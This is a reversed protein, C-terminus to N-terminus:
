HVYFPQPVLNSATLYRFDRRYLKLTRCTGSAPEHGLNDIMLELVGVSVMRIVGIEDIGAVLDLDLLDHFVFPFYEVTYDQFRRVWFGTIKLKDDPFVPKVTYRRDIIEVNERNQRSFFGVEAEEPEPYPVAVPFNGFADMLFLFRGLDLPDVSVIEMKKRDRM